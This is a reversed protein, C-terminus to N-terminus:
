TMSHEARREARVYRLACRCHLRSPHVATQHCLMDHKEEFLLLSISNGM